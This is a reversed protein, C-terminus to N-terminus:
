ANRVAAAAGTFVRGTGEGEVRVPVTDSVDVELALAVDDGFGAAVLERASICSALAEPGTWGRAAVLAEASLSCGADALRSCILGAGLWDELSPRMGEVGPEVSSWHEGCAVVTVRKAVGDDLLRSVAAASASANRLGGVLLAPAGAAAGAAAAGNLSTFLVRQGPEASLLSQPSLSIQGPPVRRRKSLPRAGLGTAAAELGGMREIEAGSYVLCTFDRAVAVALTTSFSLVDVVVVIDGRAAALGAGTPGWEVHVQCDPWPDFQSPAGVDTM